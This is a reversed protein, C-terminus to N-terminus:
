EIVQERARRKRSEVQTETMGMVLAIQAHRMRKGRVGNVIHHTESREGDPTTAMEEFQEGERTVFVHPDERGATHRPCRPSGAHRRAKCLFGNKLRAGCKGGIDGLPVPLPILEHGLVTRQYSELVPVHCEKGNRVIVETELACSAMIL